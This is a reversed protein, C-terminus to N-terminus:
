VPYSGTSYQEKSSKGWNKKAKKNKRSFDELGQYDGRLAENSEGWIWGKKRREGKSVRTM